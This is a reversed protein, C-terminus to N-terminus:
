PFDKDAAAVAQIVLMAAANMRGVRRHGQFIRAATLTSVGMGDGVFLIVNKAKGKRIKQQKASEIAAWGDRKWSERNEQRKVSFSIQGLGSTSIGALLVITAFKSRM